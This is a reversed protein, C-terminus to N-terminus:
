CGIAHRKFFIPPLPSKRRMIRHDSGIVCHASRFKCSFDSQPSVYRRSRCFKIIYAVSGANGSLDCSFRRPLFFAM